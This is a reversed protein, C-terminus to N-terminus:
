VQSLINPIAQITHTLLTALRARLAARPPALLAARRAPAAAAPLLPHRGAGHRGRHRRGAPRHAAQQRRRGRRAAAAHARVGHGPQAAVDQERERAPESQSCDGAITRAVMAINDINNWCARPM